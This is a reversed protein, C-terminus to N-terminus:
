YGDYDQDYTDKHKIEELLSRLRKITPQLFEHFDNIDQEIKRHFVLNLNIVINSNSKFQYLSQTNEEIKSLINNINTQFNCIPKWLNLNYLCDLSLSKLYGNLLVFYDLLDSFGSEVVDPTISLEENQFINEKLVPIKIKISRDVLYTFDSDNPVKIQLEACILLKLVKDGQEAKEVAEMIQMFKNIIDDPGVWFDEKHHQEFIIIMQNESVSLSLLDRNVINELGLNFKDLQYRIKLIADNMQMLHEFYDELSKDITGRNRFSSIIFLEKQFACEYSQSARKTVKEMLSRLNVKLYSVVDILQIGLRACQSSITFYANLQDIVLGWKTFIDKTVLNFSQFEEKSSIAENFFNKEIENEAAKWENKLEEFYPSFCKQIFQEVPKIEKEVYSRLDKPFQYLSTHILDIWKVVKLSYMVSDICSERKWNLILQFQIDLQKKIVDIILSKLPDGKSSITDLNKISPENQYHTITEITMVTFSLQHKLWTWFPHKKKTEEHILFQEIDEQNQLKNKFDLVSLPSKFNIGKQNIDSNLDLEITFFKTKTEFLLFCDFCHIKWESQATPALFSTTRNSYIQGEIWPYYSSVPINEWNLKKFRCSGDCEVILIQNKYYIRNVESYFSSDHVTKNHLVSKTNLDYVIVLEGVDLHVYHGNRSFSWSDLNVSQHPLLFEGSEVDLCVLSGPFVCVVVTGEMFRSDSDLCLHTFTHSNLEPLSVVQISINLDIHSICVTSGWMSFDKVDFYRTLLTGKVTFLYLVEKFKIAIYDNNYIIKPHPSHDYGYRTEESFLLISDKINPQYELSDMKLGWFAGKSWYIAFSPCICLFSSPSIPLLYSTKLLSGNFIPYLLSDTGCLLVYKSCSFIHGGRHKPLKFLKLQTQKLLNWKLIRSQYSLALPFCEDDSLLHPPKLSKRLVYAKWFSTDKEIKYKLGKSVARWILRERASRVRSVLLEFVVGEM